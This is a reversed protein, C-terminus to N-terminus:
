LLQFGQARYNNLKPDGSALDTVLVDIGSFDCVKFYEISDLKEGNSLAVTKLSSKIMAQKLEGETQLSATIGFAHHIACTGMFYLDAVYKGAEYIAQTGSSTATDRDYNGGLIIIEIEPIRSLIQVVAQNNTIVKLVSNLPLRGAIACITSGGDMFITQGNKILQQAKLAIVDKGGQLYTTREQFSLPNESRLMAGGRIKSLLGNNHLTEIDRRITDESVSLEGALLDYTVMERNQLLKLIHQLRKEKVM